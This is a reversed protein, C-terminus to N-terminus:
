CRRRSLASSAFPTPATSTNSRSGSRKLDLKHFAKCLTALRASEAVGLTAWITSLLLDEPLDLLTTEVAPLASQLASPIDDMKRTTVTEPPRRPLANAREIELTEFPVCQGGAAMDDLSAESEPLSKSSAGARLTDRSPAAFPACVRGRRAAAALGATRSVDSLSSSPLTVSPSASSSSPPSPDSPSSASSTRIKSSSSALCGALFRRRLSSDDCSFLFTRDRGPLWSDSRLSRAGLCAEESRGFHGM